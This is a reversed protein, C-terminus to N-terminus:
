APRRAVLWMNDSTPPRDAFRFRAIQLGAASVMARMTKPTFYNVHEPYRFGCWRQGRVLRNFSAFNPVKIIVHGGPRLVRTTEQLVVLPESEHELFSKMLVGEFWRDDFSMLGALADAHVVMGGRRSAFAHSIKATKNAIEIGYPVCRADLEKLTTGHGCGVDLFRGQMVYRRILSAAKSRPFYRHRIRNWNQSLFHVVPERRQRDVQEAAFTKNWSHSAVLAEYPLANELYIFRCGACHKVVWCDSSFRSPPRHRNDRECLPCFRHLCDFEAPGDFPSHRSSSITGTLVTVSM